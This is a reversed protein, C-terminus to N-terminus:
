KSGALTLRREAEHVVERASLSTLTKGLARQLKKDLKVTDGKLLGQKKIYDHLKVLADTKTLPGVGIIAALGSGPVYGVQGKPIKPGERAEKRLRVPDIRLRKAVEHIQATSRCGRLAMVVLFRGLSPADLTEIQKEVNKQTLGVIELTGPEYLYEATNRALVLLDARELKGSHRAYIAKLVAADAAEEAKRKERERQREARWKTELASASGSSPKKIGAAKMAKQVDSLRLVEVLDHTEPDELLAPKPLHKGLVQRPSKYGLDSSQKDFRLWGDNLYDNPAAGHPAIRRAAPGTIVTQGQKRAEEAKRAAFAQRKEGFCHADTCIDASKIDAFLERQNGTRKPCTVCPGARPLLAADDIPFPASKLQLMFHDHIHEKADRFTMPGDGRHKGELVVKLIQRQPDHHGIRAIELAISFELKGEGLAKKGEPCLDNLKCRAYVYGRSKGIVDALRDVGFAANGKKKHIQILQAYGEAEELPSLDDRQLNDTLQLELVQADTLERVSVPVHALGALKAARWRREGAVIQYKISAPGAKEPHPRVLIPSIIGHQKINDALEDLTTNDFHKRPNTPSAVLSAVPVFDFEPKGPHATPETRTVVAGTDM